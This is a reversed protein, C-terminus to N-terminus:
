SYPHRSIQNPPQGLVLIIIPLVDGHQRAWSSNRKLWHATTSTAAITVLITTGETDDTADTSVTAAEDPSTSVITTPIATTVPTPAATLTNTNPSTSTISTSTIPPATSINTTSGERNTNTNDSDGSGLSGDGPFERNANADQKDGSGLDADNGDEFMDELFSEVATKGFRYPNRRM